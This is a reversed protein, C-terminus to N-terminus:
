AGGRPDALMADWLDQMHDGPWPKPTDQVEDPSAAAVREPTIDSM